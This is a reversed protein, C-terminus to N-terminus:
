HSPGGGTLPPAPSEPCNRTPPHQASPGQPGVVEARLLSLFPKKLLDSESNNEPDRSCHGPGLSQTIGRPIWLQNQSKLPRGLEGMASSESDVCSDLSSEKRRARHDRHSLATPQGPRLDPSPRSGCLEKALPLTAPVGAETAVSTPPKSGKHTSPMRPKSLNKYSLFCLTGILGTTHSSIANQLSATHVTSLTISRQCTNIGPNGNLALCWGSAPDARSLHRM